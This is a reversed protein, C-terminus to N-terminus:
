QAAGIRPKPRRANVVDPRHFTEEPAGTTVLRAWENGQAFSHDQNSVEYKWGGFRGRSWVRRSELVPLVTNLCRDRHLSPTPYGYPLRRHWTHRVCERNPILQTNLMGQLVDDVVSNADVPKFPSEAVEAMLSWHKSVDPVNNPSYHSFVTVRYFPCDDDPFYMWCKGTLQDSPRGNLAVGIIHTSSHRLDALAPGLEGALDSM